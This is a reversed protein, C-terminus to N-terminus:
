SAGGRSQRGLYQRIVVATYQEIPMELAQELTVWAYEEAEDNLKVETSDTKCAYDFFIFHRRQWFREDYVFEQFCIFEIDRIDLNTEEKVERRLAEEMREGLEIHGGPLVWKGRWKHSRMLFVKGEANFILAGVTPEPYHQEGM